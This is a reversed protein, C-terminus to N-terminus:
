ELEGAKPHVPALYESIKRVTELTPNDHQGTRILHLTNRNVGTHTAVHGLQRGELGKKIEEITLM